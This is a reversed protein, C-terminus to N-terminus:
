YQEVDKNDISCCSVGYWLVYNRSAVCTSEVSPAVVDRCRGYHISLVLGCRCMLHWLTSGARPRLLGVPAVTYFRCSAVVACCLGCHLVLVLGSCCLRPLLVSCARPWFLVVSAVTYFLCSAVIADSFGASLFYLQSTGSLCRSRNM